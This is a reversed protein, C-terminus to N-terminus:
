GGTAAVPTEENARLAGPPHVGPFGWEAPATQKLSSANGEGDLLRVEIEIVPYIVGARAYVGDANAEQEEPTRDRWRTEDRVWVDMVSSTCEEPLFAPALSDGGRAPEWGALLLLVDNADPAAPDQRRCSDAAACMYRHATLADRQPVCLCVEGQEDWAVGGFRSVLVSAMRRARWRWHEGPQAAHYRLCHGGFVHRCGNSWRVWALYANAPNEAFVRDGSTPRYIFQIM